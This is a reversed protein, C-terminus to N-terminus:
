REAPTGGACPNGNADVGDKCPTLYKAAIMRAVSSYLVMKPQAEGMQRYHEYAESHRGDILLDAGAAEGPSAAAVFAILRLEVPGSPAPRPRPAAVPPVRVRPPAKDFVGWALGLAAGLVVVVAAIVPASASRKDGPETKKPEPVGPPLAFLSRLNRQPAGKAPQPAGVVRTPAPPSRPPGEPMTKLM